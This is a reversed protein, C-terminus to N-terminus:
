LSWGHRVEAVMADGLLGLALIAEELVATRQEFAPDALALDGAALVVRGATEMSALLWVVNRDASAHEAYAVSLDVVEVWATKAKFYRSEISDSLGFTLCAATLVAVAVLALVRRWFGSTPNVRCNM